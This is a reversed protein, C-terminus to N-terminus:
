SAGMFLIGNEAKIGDMHLAINHRGVFSHRSLKYVFKLWESNRLNAKIWDLLNELFFQPQYEEQAFYKWIDKAVLCYRLVHLFEKTEYCCVPCSMNQGFGRHVCEMNALLWQKSILWLFFRVRHPGQYKWVIRWRAYQANWIRVKLM